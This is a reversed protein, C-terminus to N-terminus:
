TEIKKKKRFIVFKFLIFIWRIIGYLIYASMLACLSYERGAFVLALIILLLIFSKLNWKLKKFNHYRINSVMLISIIFAILLFVYGHELFITNSSNEAVLIWLVVIAAASPIPLGIFFNPEDSVTINFRALRVAGLVVFLASVVSGYRGYEYGVFFYLLLAPAVGFAVIDALSDFEIGFKSATNTLRAVRGDLGDLVMSLLIYWCAESFRGSSALVMSMVGFFISAATFLNPLIYLMNM